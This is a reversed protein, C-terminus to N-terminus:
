RAGSMKAIWRRAEEGDRFVRVPRHRGAADAFQAAPLHTHVDVVIALPGAPGRKALDRMSSGLKQMEDLALKIAPGSVDFIKGYPMAGEAAIDQLYRRIEDPTLDEGATATM